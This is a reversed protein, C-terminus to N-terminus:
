QDRFVFLYDENYEIKYRELFLKYEDRFSLKQHHLEQNKIYKCVHDIQSKSYSFAGYGAQWGFKNGFIKNQNIIYSSQRKIEHVTESISMTPNLGLLIHIHDPMSNICITKHGIENITNSVIKIVDNKANDNIMAQRFEVAFVLHIYLQSFTGPKMVIEGDLKTIKHIAM